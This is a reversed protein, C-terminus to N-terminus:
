QGAQHLLIIVDWTVCPARATTAGLKGWPPVSCLLYRANVPDASHHLQHL